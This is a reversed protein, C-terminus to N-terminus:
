SLAALLSTLYACLGGRLVENRDDQAQIKELLRRMEAPTALSGAVHGEAVEEMDIEIAAKKAAGRM